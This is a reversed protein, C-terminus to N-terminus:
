APFPCREEGAQDIDGAGGGTVRAMQRVVAHVFWRAFAILEDSAADTLLLGQRALEDAAEIAELFRPAETVVEEPLRVTLSMRGTGEDGVARAQSWVPRVLEQYRDLTAVVEMVPDDALPHQPRSALSVLAFERVLDRAHDEWARLLRTPVDVLRIEPWDDPLPLPSPVLSVEPEVADGSPRPASIEAWVTKGDPVPDIGWRSALTAVVRLGLGWTQSSEGHRAPAIGYEAGDRVEIRVGDALQHVRLEIPTRAHIVSNSLMESTLLSADAALQYLGWREVCATVFERGVPVAAHSPELEVVHVQQRVGNVEVEGLLRQHSVM